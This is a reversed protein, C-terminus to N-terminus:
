TMTIQNMSKLFLSPGWCILEAKRVACPLNFWIDGIKCLYNFAKSEPVNLITLNQSLIIIIIIVYDITFICITFISPNKTNTNTTLICNIDCHGRDVQLILRHIERLLVIVPSVLLM